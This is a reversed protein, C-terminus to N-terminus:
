SDSVCRNWYTKPSYFYFLFLIYHQMDYYIFCDNLHLKCYALLGRSYQLLHLTPYEHLFHKNVARSSNKKGSKLIHRFHVALEKCWFWYCHSLLVLPLVFFLAHVDKGKATKLISHLTRLMYIEANRWDAKHHSCPNWYPTFLEVHEQWYHLIFFLNFFRNEVSCM